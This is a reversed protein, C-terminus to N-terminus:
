GDLSSCGPGGNLWITVEEVPDGFTPAFVFFLTRSTDNSDIPVNGSYLEPIDFNVDPLSEVAYASCELDTASGECHKAALERKTSNSMFKYSEAREELSRRVPAPQAFKEFRANRADIRDRFKGASALLPWAALTLLAAGTSHM